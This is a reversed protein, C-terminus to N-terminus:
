AFHARLQLALQQEVAPEQGAMNANEWRDFDSNCHPQDCGRHDYLETAVTENWSPMLLTGNWRVWQTYRWSEVRITYGMYGILQRPVDPCADAVLWPSWSHNVGNKWNLCRAMQSFAAQKDKSVDGDLVSVLSTGDVDAEITAPDLGALDSITRYIDILEAFAKTRKGHSNPRSPDRIIFPINLAAEFCTQKCYENHEGLQWGHDAAMIIITNNARGSNNLAQLATGILHDTFSVAAYYARRANQAISTSVPHGKTENNPFHAWDCYHYAIAPMGDPVTIHKAIPIQEAPPYLDFFRKPVGWPLHPKHIGLGVFFNGNLGSVQDIFGVVTEAIMIDTCNAASVDNPLECYEATADGGPASACNCGENGGPDTLNISWSRPNDENPPLEPHYMKGSGVTWYGAKKFHEPMATWNMGTDEERFSNQFNWVKTKSPMRGSMFSNRSPNCYPYNTYARDFVMGSAALADINPTHMYDHGYTGLQPRLDDVMLFLVNSRPSNAQACGLLGVMVCVSTMAM